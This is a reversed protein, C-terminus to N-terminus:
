FHQEIHGGYGLLSLDLVGPVALVPGEVYEDLIIVLQGEVPMRHGLASVTDSGLNPVLSSQVHELQAPGGSLSASM